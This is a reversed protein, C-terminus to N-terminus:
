ALLGVFVRGLILNSVDGKLDLECFYIDMENCGRRFSVYDKDNSKIRLVFHSLM